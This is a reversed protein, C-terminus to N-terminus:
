EATQIWTMVADQTLFSVVENTALNVQVLVSSRARLGTRNVVTIQIELDCVDSRCDVPGRTVGVGTISGDSDFIIPNQFRM